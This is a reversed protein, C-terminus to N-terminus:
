ETTFRPSHGDYPLEGAPVTKIAVESKFLKELENKLSDLITVGDYTEITALVTGDKRKLARYEDFFGHKM